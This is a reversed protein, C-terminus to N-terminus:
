AGCTEAPNFTILQQAIAANLAARLTRRVAQQSAPGTAKRYPKERGTEGERSGAPSARRRRSPRATAALQEFREASRLAWTREQPHAAVGGQHRYSDAKRAADVASNLTAHHMRYLRLSWETALSDDEGTFWSLADWTSIAPRLPLAQYDAVYGVPIILCVPNTFM